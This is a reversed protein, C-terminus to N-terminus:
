DGSLGYLTTRPTVLDGFDVSNGTTQITVYQMTNVGTTSGATQGGGWVGKTGDGAAGAGHSAVSLDGFDISNGLTQITFYEMNTTAALVARTDDAVGHQRYTAHVSDGFDTANGTTAITIYDMTSIGWTTGDWGGVFVGRTIDAVAGPYARTVSLDGFDLANGISSITIYDINNFHTWGGDNYGGGAFVGRDNGACAGIGSKAVTLDGFDTTNGTSAITIYEIIDKQNADGASGGGFVGRSGNSCASARNRDSSLNGFDIANGTTAITIYEIADSYTTASGSPRKGGVFLGRGGYSAAPIYGTSDQDEWAMKGNDADWKLVEGGTLSSLDTHAEVPVGNIKRM